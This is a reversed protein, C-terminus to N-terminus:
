QCQTIIEQLKYNFYITTAYNNISNESISKNIIITSKFLVISNEIIIKENLINEIFNTVNVDNIKYNRKFINLCWIDYADLFLDSSDKDLRNIIDILQM